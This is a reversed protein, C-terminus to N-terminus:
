KPRATGTNITQVPCKCKEGQTSNESKYHSWNAPSNECAQCNTFYMVIFVTSLIAFFVVAVALALEKRSVTQQLTDHNETSVLSNRSHNISIQSIVASNSRTSRPPLWSTPVHTVECYVHSQDITAAWALKAPATLKEPEGMKM